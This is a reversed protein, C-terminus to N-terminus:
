RTIEELVMTPLNDYDPIHFGIVQDVVKELSSFLAGPTANGIPTEPITRPQTTQGNAPTGIAGELWVISLLLLHVLFFSANRHRMLCCRRREISCSCRCMSANM